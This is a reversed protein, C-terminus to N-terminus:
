AELIGVIDSFVDDAGRTGDVHRLIGEEEYFAILPKTQEHYVRLRHRVTEPKDDERLATVQGCRDCIGEKKTPTYRIHYTAGCGICARRGAMRELIVEDPVDVNVAADLRDGMESLAQKLSQAQAMTRPFGDLIYGKKCDEERIRGMLMGVTISDPVLEGRDMYIKAERGLPTQEKINSRFIDGTSVHPLGFRDGIRKAQTGKGAGPAGLM